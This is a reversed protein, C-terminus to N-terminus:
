ICKDLKDKPISLMIDGLKFYYINSDEMDYRLQHLMVEPVLLYGALEELHSHDTKSKISTM